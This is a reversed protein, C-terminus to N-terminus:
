ESNARTKMVDVKYVKTELVRSYNDWGNFAFVGSRLQGLGVRHVSLYAAYLVPYGLVLGLCLLTPVNMVFAFSGASMERRYWPRRPVRAITVAPTSM